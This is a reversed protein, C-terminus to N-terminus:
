ASVIRDRPAHVACACLGPGAGARGATFALWAGLASTSPFTGTYGCGTYIIYKGFLFRHAQGKESIICSSILKHRQDKRNTLNRDDM